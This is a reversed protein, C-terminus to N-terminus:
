PCLLVSSPRQPKSHPPAAKKKKKEAWAVTQISLRRKETKREKAHAKATRSRTSEEGTKASWVFPRKRLSGNAGSPSVKLHASLFFPFLFAVECSGIRADTDGDSREREEERESRESTERVEVVVVVVVFFGSGLGFCGGGRGGVLVGVALELSPVVCCHRIVVVDVVVRPALRGVHGGAVVPVADPATRRDAASASAAAVERRQARRPRRVGRSGGGHGDGTGARSADHRLEVGISCCCSSSSYSPAAVAAVSSSVSSRNRLM